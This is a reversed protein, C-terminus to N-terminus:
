IAKDIQGPWHYEDNGTDAMQIGIWPMEKKQEITGNQELTILSLHFIQGERGNKLLVRQGIKLALVETKKM